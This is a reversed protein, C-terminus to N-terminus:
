QDGYKLIDISVTYCNVPTTRGEKELQGQGTIGNEHNDNFQNKLILVNNNFVGSAYSVM